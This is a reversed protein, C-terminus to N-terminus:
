KVKGTEVGQQKLLSGHWCVQQCKNEALTRLDGVRGGDAKKVFFAQLKQTFIVNSIQM